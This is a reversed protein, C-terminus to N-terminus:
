QSGIRLEEMLAVLFVEYITSVWLISGKSDELQCGVRYYWSNPQKDSIPLEQAM